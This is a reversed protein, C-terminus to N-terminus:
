DNRLNKPSEFELQTYKYRGQYRYLLKEASQHKETGAFRGSGGIAEEAKTAAKQVLTRETYRGSWFYRGNSTAQIGGAVGGVIGGTFAGGVMGYGGEAIAVDFPNGEILSNGTGQILGCSAGNAAGVMAGSYFGMSGNIFAAASASFMSGFGVAVGIGIAM